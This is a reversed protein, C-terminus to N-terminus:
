DVSAIFLPHKAHQGINQVAAIQWDAVRQAAAMDRAKGKVAQRVSLAIRAATQTLDEGLVFVADYGEIERLAPTPVGSNQLVNLMLDLRGQEAQSSVPTSTRPVSWSACPSTAKWAPAHRASASSKRRRRLMDAAGQMAQEANLTIWDDGATATASASPRDPQRLWLRFPWPRVPLLPEGCGNYRNEIRRMEGYREGPSTNCGISCQQCISPAFQMDWKRNYRESHTKDTFM